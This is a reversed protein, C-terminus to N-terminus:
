NLNIDESLNPFSKLIAKNREYELILEVEELETEDPVLVDEIDKMDMDPNDELLTARMFDKKAEEFEQLQYHCDSKLYYSSVNSTKKIIKVFDTIADTYREALNLAVGRAMLIEINDPEKLLQKNCADLIDGILKHRLVVRRM